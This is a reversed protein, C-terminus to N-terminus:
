RAQGATSRGSTLRSEPSPCAPVRRRGSLYGVLAGQAWLIRTRAGDRDGTALCLLGRGLSRGVGAGLHGFGYGHVRLLRGYGQSYVRARGTQATSATTIHCHHVVLDRDYDVHIGHALCRLLLDTEEGSQFPTGAGVGLAEDFGGVTEFVRRRAFLTNSNGSTFVNDRDVPGSEPRHPSVSDRGDPDITRGTLVARREDSFARKVRAVVHPGYWCDDDPFGMVIGGAHQLGINRAKSLGRPSRLHRIDLVGRYSNLIPAIDIADNQDVVIVEFEPEDQVALSDLLRRLTDARGM